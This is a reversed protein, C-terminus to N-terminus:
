AQRSKARQELRKRAMAAVEDAMQQIEQPLDQLQDTAGTLTYLAQIFPQLFAADGSLAMWQALREGLGLESCEWVQEQLQYFASADNGRAAQALAHLAQLCDDQNGLVLHTQLRVNHDVLGDLAALERYLLLAEPMQKQQWLLRALNAKVTWSKADLRLAQRYAAEADKYRNMHAQLLYGLGNWHQANKDDLTIAKRYAVEAEEYRSMHAQLLNGLNNWPQAYKEDLAIAQRYAAEAEEYRSMHAQLLGGLGNWPQASKDDLAIAQRYAAEAEQYRSLHAQLLNGLGNWPQVNKEDLSIARRYAAEAEEYRSLHAQLLNGLGNWSQANKEDLTIARRYAAEAEEYRNLNYQLLNGLDIWPQEYKADLAIAQRYAFEAEEYRNLNYQLLNGLGNWPSASTEDLAITQRYAAEADAYRNLPVHLLWAIRYTIDADKPIVKLALEQTKLCWDDEHFHYHRSCVSRLVSANKESFCVRIQEYALKSDPMDPFFDQELIKSRLFEAGENGHTHVWGQFETNLVHTIEKYRAESLFEAENALAEKSTLSLIMSGMVLTVWAQKEEESKAHPCRRLLEPLKSLCQLYDAAGKFDQDEGSLEFIQELETDRDKLQKLMSWRLAHRETEDKPLADAIARDYEWDHMQRLSSHNTSLRSRAMHRLEDASFWLRMFEVLWSLRNRQRRPSLRMLYWINFFREAAQYGSRTTGQLKTKQILGELELRQLQPSISSKPVQSVQALQALSIPAWHELIHALLKRPLDALADLRAKYLPTMNDLLAELDSRVHGAQGSSFLEYLMVTTRPNGGSLQRLTPLREPHATLQTQMAAQAAEGGFTLALALLAQQMEAISLPKLELVHFFDLFADHYNSNAELSQYSGGVWLLRANSQLVERLAWHAKKGINHLLLDTNDVLMLLRQGREDACSNIAQLCAAAQEKAPLQAIREATDDLHASDAGQRELADALSGLVNAWFQGLTNVTYQEEPFRLPLWASRLQVDDEVALALRQMLTSKGMGRAGVLLAHQGVSDIPTSRLSQTLDALEQQRAVFIARLQDASWLHPNYKSIAAFGGEPASPHKLVDSM